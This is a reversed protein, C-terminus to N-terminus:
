TPTPAMMPMPSRTSRESICPPRVLHPSTGSRTRFSVIGPAGAEIIVQANRGDYSGSYTGVFDNNGQFNAM